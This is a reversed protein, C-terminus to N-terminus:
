IKECKVNNLSRTSRFKWNRHERTSWNWVTDASKWCTYFIFFLPPWDQTKPVRTFLYSERSSERWPPSRCFLISCSAENERERENALVASFSFPPSTIGRSFYFSPLRPSRARQDPNWASLSSSLQSTVLCLIASSCTPSSFIRWSWHAKTHIHALSFSLCFSSSLSCLPPAFLPAQRGPFSTSVSGRSLPLFVIPRFASGWQRRKARIQSPWLIYPHQRKVRMPTTQQKYKLKWAVCILSQSKKRPFSGVYPQRDM